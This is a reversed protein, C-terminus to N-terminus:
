VCVEKCLVPGFCSLVPRFHPKPMYLVGQNLSL